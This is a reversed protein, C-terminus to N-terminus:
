FLGIVKLMYGGPAFTDLYTSPDGYDPGWGSGYFIDQNEAAGNAARYGAAYYETTNAAEVLNVTIDNPFQTEILRKYAEAQAKNNVSPGLYVMDIQVKTDAPWVAKLEERAAAMFKTAATPNYWGDKGDHVDIATEGDLELFKQVVDGYSTGQAFTTGEYVVEETLSVFEPQTYMNRLCTYKLDEGYVVANWSGRDWGHMMARRFSQSQMANWTLIKGAEAKNSACAGSPNTFAGRNINLGGFYTTADTDTVFHYDDFLGDEKAQALLGSSASLGIGPLDGQRASAYLAQPNEGNDYVWTAKTVKVKAADYYNENKTIVMSGGSTTADWTTPIFASNYLVDNISSGYKYSEKVKAEAFEDVGFDGGRGLFYQRNMPLFCSYALRTVFFSEPALLEFVLNGANDVYCGVDDFTGTGELYEDVGKVVGQVLFELGAAADLMHQFGAVFDDATVDAVARRDSNYWKAGKRIKFTFKTNDENAEWSEAMAPSLVGLNDYQVLGEVCNVMQETDSQMSTALSDFTANPTSFTTKWETGLEYGHETLYAGPDYTGEGARAKEWLKILAERDTAKIFSDAGKTMVLGKVKDMDNGFFVYPATRPAIRSISYNGGKTTTIATAGSELLSAEARAYQVFRESDNTIAKAGDYDYIFKGLVREYVDEDQARQYTEGTAPTFPISSYEPKSSSQSSSSPEVSSQSSSSASSASSSSSASSQPQGCAALSLVAGVALVLLKKNKLAKM